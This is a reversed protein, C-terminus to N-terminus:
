IKMCYSLKKLLTPILLRVGTRLVFGAISFVRESLVSTAPITLYKRALSSSCPFRKQNEKWFLLIDTGENPLKGLKLYEDIEQSASKINTVEGTHYLDGLLIEFASKKKKKSPPASGLETSESQSTSPFDEASAIMELNSYLNDRPEPNLFSVDKFRPDLVTALMIKRDILLEPLNLKFRKELESAFCHKFNFIAPYDSGSPRAAKYLGFLVPYAISASVYKQGGLLETAANIPVLADVLCKVSPWDQDTPFPSKTSSSKVIKRLNEDFLVKAYFKKLSINRQLMGLASGWRVEM